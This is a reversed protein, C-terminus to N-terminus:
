AKRNSFLIMALFIGFFNKSFLDLINYGINKIRYSALAAIGYLGWVISFYFFSIRGIHTFKAYNEYILYFMIFFPVFGLSVGTIVSLKGIETLYGFLLMLTNLIFIPLLKESNNIILELLSDNNDTTHKQEVPQNHQKENQYKNEEIDEKSNSKIHILYVCYSFLMTPTTIIWDYYRHVTINKIIHFNTILWFYFIGEVLQVYLELKLLERIIHYEENHDFTLVYIDFFVTLVQIFFSFIGTSLLINM